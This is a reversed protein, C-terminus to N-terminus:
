KNSPKYVAGRTRKWGARRLIATVRRQASMDRREPELGLCMSLIDQATVEDRRKIFQQVTPEWPDVAYRDDQELQAEHMLQEDPWWPVGQKYLHFVEAWLQDRDRELAEVNIRGVPVPWFRRGGTEDRLYVDQNTTGIFICQRPREVTRKAYPPRFKEVRRSVFAKTKEVETRLMAGLESVEFCWATAVQMSADKTGMTPLEDTYWDKGFLTMIATSKYTGQPGELVLMYDAKCGPQMVRAVASILACRMVGRIYPSDECGFYEVPLRDIRPVGDWELSHLWDRIPHFTNDQAVADVADSVTKVSVMMDGKTQMWNTALIDFQDSWEQPQWSDANRAWPPPKVAMIRDHFEDYALVGSWAKSKRLAVIVNALIPRISGDRNTQLLQKWEAKSIDEFQHLKM